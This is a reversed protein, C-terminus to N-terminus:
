ERRGYVFVWVLGVVTWIGLLVVTVQGLEKMSFFDSGVENVHIVSVFLIGVAWAGGIALLIKEGRKM